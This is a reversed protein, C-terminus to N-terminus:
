KVAAAALLSSTLVFPVSVLESKSTVTEFEMKRAFPEIFILFSMTCFPPENCIVFLTKTNFPGEVTLPKSVAVDEFMYRREPFRSM